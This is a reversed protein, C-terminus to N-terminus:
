VEAKWLLVSHPEGNSSFCVALFFGVRSMQSKSRVSDSVQFFLQFCLSYPICIRGEPILSLVHPSIELAVYSLLRLFGCQKEGLRSSPYVNM